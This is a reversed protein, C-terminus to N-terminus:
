AKSLRMLMEQLLPLPYWNKITGENLGRYDVGLLLLGDGKNAFLIPSASPSSSTRIFGKSLNEELWEKLAQLETKSLSYLPRFPPTFGERHSIKHDYPRHPPLAKAVAESFLPLFDNYEKPVYDVLDLQKVEKKPELARKIEYLSLSFVTLQEKHAIRRFSRGGLAAIQILKTGFRSGPAELGIRNRADLGLGNGADLGLGNRADFRPETKDAQTTNNMQPSTFLQAGIDGAGAIVEPEGPAVKSELSCLAPEPPESSIAHAVTPVRNCNAICYQSGFTLTRSSFRIAVDHLEMWPIGLVIPYHGLKTVFM